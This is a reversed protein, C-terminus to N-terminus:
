RRGKYQLPVAQLHGSQNFFLYIFFFIAGHLPGAGHLQNHPVASLMELMGDTM